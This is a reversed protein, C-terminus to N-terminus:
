GWLYPDLNRGWISLSYIYILSLPALSHSHGHSGILLSLEQGPSSDFTCFNSGMWGYLYGYIGVQIGSQVQPVAPCHTSKIEMTNIKKWWPWRLRNSCSTGPSSQAERASGWLLELCSSAQFIYFPYAASTLQSCHMTSWSISWLSVSPYTRCFSSAGTLNDSVM